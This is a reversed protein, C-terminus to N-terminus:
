DICNTSNKRANACATRAQECRSKSGPDDLQAALACIREAPYCISDTFQDIDLCRQSRAPKPRQPTTVTPADDSYNRVTEDGSPHVWWEHVSDKQALRFGRDQLTPPKPGVSRGFYRNDPERKKGLESLFRKAFDAGYIAAMQWVVLNREFASLNKLAARAKQPWKALEKLYKQRKESADPGALSMPVGANQTWRSTPVHDDLVYM